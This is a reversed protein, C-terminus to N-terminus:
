RRSARRNQDVEYCLAPQNVATIFVAAVSDLNINTSQEVLSCVIFLLFFRISAVIYTYGRIILIFHM